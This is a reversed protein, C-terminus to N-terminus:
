GSLLAGDGLRRLLAITVGVAVPLTQGPSLVEGARTDVDGTAVPLSLAQGPTLM